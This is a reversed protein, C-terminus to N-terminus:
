KIGLKKLEIGYIDMGGKGGPRDSAFYLFKGDRSLNPCTDGVKGDANLAELPKPDGWKKGDRKAVFLGSREKELPGQLFMLKGDPTLTAHHYGVPIGADEPDRWGQPGRATARTSVMVKWGDKTRRSFYLSKGDGSMWPHAEDERTNVKMVPTPAAWAKKPGQQVAVFLDYNKGEDDKAAFFLYRPYAGQMAYAGRINGKNQVYDDLLDSKKSWAGRIRPAAMLLEKEGKLRRFMLLQGGDAVHPEDEDASTSMPLLIPKVKEDPRATVLGVIGALLVIGACYRM